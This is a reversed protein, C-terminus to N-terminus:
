TAGLELQGPYLAPGATRCPREVQNGETHRLGERGRSCLVSRVPSQRWTGRGVACPLNSPGDLRTCIDENEGKSTCCQAQVARWTTQFSLFVVFMWCSLWALAEAM